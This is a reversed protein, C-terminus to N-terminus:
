DDYRIRTVPTKRLPAYNLMHEKHGPFPIMGEPRPSTIPAAHSLVEVRPPIRQISSISYVHTPPISKPALGLPDTIYLTLGVVAAIGYANRAHRLCTYANVKFDTPFEM